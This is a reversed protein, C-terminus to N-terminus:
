ALATVARIARLLASSQHLLVLQAGVLALVAGWGTERESWEKISAAIFGTLGAERLFDATDGEVRQAALGFGIVLVLALLLPWIVLRYALAAGPM